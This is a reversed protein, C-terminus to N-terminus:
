DVLKEQENIISKTGKAVLNNDKKKKKHFFKIDKVLKKKHGKKIIKTIILHHIM